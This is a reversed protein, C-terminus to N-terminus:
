QSRSGQSSCEITYKFILTIKSM